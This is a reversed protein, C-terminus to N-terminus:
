SSDSDEGVGPMRGAKGLAPTIGCNDCNGDEDLKSSCILCLKKEEGM